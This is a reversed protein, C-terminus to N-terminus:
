QLVYYTCVALLISTYVSYMYVICWLKTTQQPITPPLTASHLEQFHSSLHTSTFAQKQLLGFSEVPQIFHYKCAAKFEAHTISQGRFFMLKSLLNRIIICAAKTSGVFEVKCHGKADTQRHTIGDRQNYTLIPRIPTISEPPVRHEQTILKALEAPQSLTPDKWEDGDMHLTIVVKEEQSYDIPYENLLADSVKAVKTSESYRSWKDIYAELKRLTKEVTYAVEDPVNTTHRVYTRLVHILPATYQYNFYPLVALHGSNKHSSYIIDTIHLDAECVLETVISAYEDQYQLLEEEAPNFTRQDEVALAYERVKHKTLYQNSFLNVLRVFLRPNNWLSIREIVSTTDHLYKISRYYDSAGCLIPTCTMCFMLQYLPVITAIYSQSSM